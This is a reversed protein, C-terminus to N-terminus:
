RVVRLKVRYERATAADLETRTSGSAVKRIAELAALKRQLGEELLRRYRAIKKLEADHPVAVAALSERLKSEAEEARDGVQLLDDMVVRASLVLSDFLGSALPAGAPTYEFRSIWQDCEAAKRAVERVTASVEQLASWLRSCRTVSAADRYTPTPEELLDTIAEGLANLARKLKECHEREPTGAVLEEARTLVLAHEMRGIRELKWLDDGILAVLQAEVDSKPAFSEFVADVRRTYEDASEGPLM